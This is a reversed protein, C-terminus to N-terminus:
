ILGAIKKRLVDPANIHQETYVDREEKTMESWKKTGGRPTGSPARHAAGSPPATGISQVLKTLTPIDADKWTERLEDTPLRELLEEKRQQNIESISKEYESVKDKLPSLEALQKELGAKEEQAKEYLSKFQGQEELAKQEAERRAQKQKDREEILERKEAEVQERASDVAKLKATLEDIQKKLTAADVAEGGTDAPKNEDAM